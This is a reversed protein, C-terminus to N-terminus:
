VPSEWLAGGCRRHRHDHLRARPGRRRAHRPAGRAAGQAGRDIAGGGQRLRLRPAAPGARVDRLEHRGGRQQHQAPRHGRAAAPAVRAVAGGEGRPDGRRHLARLFVGARHLGARQLVRGPKRLAGAAACRGSRRRDRAPPVRDQVRRRAGARHGQTGSPGAQGARHRARAPRRRARARRSLRGGAGRRHDADDPRRSRRRTGAGPPLLADGGVARGPDEAERHRRGRAALHRRARLPVQRRAVVNPAGCVVNHREPAGDNVTCVRLRDANPHPRVEEVLAVVISALDQHLPVIADAPAGLLALKEAVDRADLPRRLFAELWRRSVNM